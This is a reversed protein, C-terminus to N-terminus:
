HGGGTETLKSAVLDGLHVMLALKYKELLEGVYGDGGKFSADSFGMHGLVAAIEDMKLKMFHQLFIVSKQSHGFPIKVDMQYAAIQEWRGTDQNKVNKLYRSYSNTKCIDHFLAAIAISEDAAALEEPTYYLGCLRMTEHYVNLSHQLLGGEESLHFRTSAPATYFDTKTELWEMLEDIGDRSIHERVITRFQEKNQELTM